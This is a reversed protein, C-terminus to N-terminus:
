DINDDQIIRENFISGESFDKIKSDDEYNLLDQTKEKKVECVDEFTKKIIVYELFQNSNNNGNKTFDNGVNNKEKDVSILNNKGSHGDVKKSCNM